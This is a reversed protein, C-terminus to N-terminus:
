ILGGSSRRLVALSLVAFVALSVITSLYGGRSGTLVIGVYCVGVTYGVLLKGWVPWRSWCVVSLGFIGLVELLGALHNPCIYFGSARRDYNARQLWSIPMFNNGDRFQFAGVAIHGLALTLLIALFFMRQKASTFLCATFFYVILGGLVSHIDSRAIYPMPSFWARVLIYGFFITALALCVQSPTPKRQRLSFLALLGVGGLLAYCPLSFVMRTGGIMIQIAVFAAALLIFSLGGVVSSFRDCLSM